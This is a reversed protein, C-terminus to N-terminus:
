KYKRSHSARLSPIGKTDIKIIKPGGVYTSIHQGSRSNKIIDNFTNMGRKKNEPNIWLIRTDAPVLNHPGSTRAATYARYYPKLITM